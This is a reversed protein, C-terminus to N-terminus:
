SLAIVHDCSLFHQRSFVDDAWFGTHLFGTVVHPAKPRLRSVAHSVEWPGFSHVLDAEDVYPKVARQILYAAYRTFASRISYYRERPALSVIRPEARLLRAAFRSIPSLRVPVVVPLGGDNTVIGDIPLPSVLSDVLSREDHCAAVVTVRHKRAMAGAVNRLFVELGGRAPVYRNSCYVLRLESNRTM